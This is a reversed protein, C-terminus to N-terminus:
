ISGSSNVQNNKLNNLGTQLETLKMDFDFSDLTENNSKLNNLEMELQLLMLEREKRDNSKNEDSLKERLVKMERSIAEQETTAYHETQKVTSHGLMEKVVHIPVGNNLTVTSAFTHRAKHTSLKSTIGCLVAIERLYDNMKQNSKVPFVTGKLLCQPSNKYKEVLEMAKPLLPIDTTAKTKKRRNMIWMSGDIGEKINEKKLLYVDIYALGTYCQFVFIDRIASLRASSFQKTEMLHLEARTLPRKKIKTKKGNFEIFPDGPIIKKAVALLVIKKFNGIYKLATNNCCNRVTKLYFEYDKIFEFDLEYFELDDRKYKYQIFEKVHSRATVYRTYTGLAYEKKDEDEDNGEEVLDANSKKVLALIEDNHKQFEELVLTRSRHNGKTFDIISASTVSKGLNYQDIKFQNIKTTLSELFLNFSRADEKTGTARGLKQDWRRSDWKRKTSTEKPVGDVIVRVYVYRFIDSKKEPSKLFFTLGYSNELM